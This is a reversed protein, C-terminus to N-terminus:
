ARCDLELEREPDPVPAPRDSPIRCAAVLGLIGIAALVFWVLSGGLLNKQVSIAFLSTAAGPGLARSASAVMQALGNVAGLSRRSPASRNVLLMNCVFVIGAICRVSLMISAGLYAGKNGAALALAHALPFTTVSVVQMAMGFKYLTVVGVWREIPPFVIVAVITTLLGSVALTVGIESTSFGVGGLKIPTYLWLVCVANLSVSILAMFAYAVLVRQVSINRLIDWM